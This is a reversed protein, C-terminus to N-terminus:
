LSLGLEELLYRKKTLSWIAIAAAESALVHKTIAGRALRLSFTFILRIFKTVAKISSSLKFKLSHAEWDHVLTKLLVFSAEPNEKYLYNWRNWCVFSKALSGGM